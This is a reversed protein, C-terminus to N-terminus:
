SRGNKLLVTFASLKCAIDRGVRSPGVALQQAAVSQNPVRLERAPYAEEDRM